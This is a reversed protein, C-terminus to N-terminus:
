EDAFQDLGAQELVEEVTEGKDADVVSQDEEVIFTGKAVDGVM